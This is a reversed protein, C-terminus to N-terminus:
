FKYGIGAQFGAYLSGIGLEAFGFTKRGFEVGIPSIQCCGKFSNDEFRVSGDSDTYRYSLEKFGVYKVLGAGLSGYLRVKKRNMYMFKARPLLYIAAGTQRGTVSNDMAEYRDHWLFTAALDASLSFWSSVAYDFGIGLAGTTLTPGTYDQYLGSLQREARWDFSDKILTWGSGNVFLDAAHAPAAAISLRLDYKERVPQHDLRRQRQRQWADLPGAAYSVTGTALAVFVAFLKM